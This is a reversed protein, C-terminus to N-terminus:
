TEGQIWHECPHKTVWIKSAMAQHQSSNTRDGVTMHMHQYIDTGHVTSLISKLSTRGWDTVRVRGHLLCFLLSRIKLLLVGYVFTEAQEGRWSKKPALGDSDHIWINKEQQISMKIMQRTKCQTKQEPLNKKLKDRVHMTSSREFIAYAMNKLTPNHCSFWRIHMNVLWQPQQVVLM